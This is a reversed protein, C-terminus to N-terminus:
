PVPMPVEMADNHSELVVSVGPEARYSEVVPCPVNAKLWALLRDMPVAAGSAATVHVAWLMRPRFSGRGVRTNGPFLLAPPESAIAICSGNVCELIDTFLWLCCITYCVCIFAYM